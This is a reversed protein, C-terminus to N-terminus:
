ELFGGCSIFLLKNPNTTPASSQDNTCEESALSSKHSFHTSLFGQVYMHLNLVLGFVM